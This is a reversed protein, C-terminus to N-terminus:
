QQVVSNFAFKPPLPLTKKVACQDAMKVFTNCHRDPSDPSANIDIVNTDRFSLGDPTAAHELRV